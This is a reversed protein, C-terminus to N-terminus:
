SDIPCGPVKCVPPKTRIDCLQCQEDSLLLKARDCADSVPDGEWDAGMQERFEKEANIIKELAKRASALQARFREIEDAAEKREEDREDWWERAVDGYRAAPCAPEHVLPVGPAGGGNCLRCAAFDSGHVGYNDSYVIQDLLYALAAKEKGPESM